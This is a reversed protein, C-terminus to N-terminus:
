HFFQGNRFLTGLKNPIRILMVLVYVYMYVYLYMVRIFVDNNCIIAQVKIM